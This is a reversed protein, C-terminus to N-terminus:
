GPSRHGDDPEAARTSRRKADRQGTRTYRTAHHLDHGIAQWDSRLAAADHRQDTYTPTRVPRPAPFLTFAQRLGVLLTRLPHTRPAESTSRRPNPPM